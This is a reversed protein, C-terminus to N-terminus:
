GEGLGLIQRPVKAPNTIKVVVEHIGPDLGFLAFETEAVVFPPPPEGTDDFYNALGAAVLLAVALCALLRTVWIM